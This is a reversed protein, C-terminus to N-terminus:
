PTAAQDDTSAAVAAQPGKRPLLTLPDVFEGSGAIKPAGPQTHAPPSSTKSVLRTTAGPKIQVVTPAVAQPAATHRAASVSASKKSAGQSSTAAPTAVSPSAPAARKAQGALATREDDTLALYAEWRAQRDEAQLQRVEQFQLRAQGRQYPTMRAWEAMREQIRSREDATMTPMRAAVELWKQQRDSSLTSWDKQLPQLALQQRASLLHWAIRGSASPSSTAEAPGALAPLPAWAASVCVAAWVWARALLASLRSGSRM